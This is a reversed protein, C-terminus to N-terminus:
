FFALIIDKLLGRCDRELDQDVRLKRDDKQIMRYYIVETTYLADNFLM